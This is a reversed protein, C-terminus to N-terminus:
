VRFRVHQLLLLAQKELLPPAPHGIDLSGLWASDDRRCSAADPRDCSSNCSSDCGEGAGSGVGEGGLMLVRPDSWSLDEVSYTQSLLCTDADALGAEVHAAEVNKDSAEVHENGGM